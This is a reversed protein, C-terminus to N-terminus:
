LIAEPLGAHAVQWKRLYALLRRVRLFIKVKKGPEASYLRMFLPPIPNSSYLRHIIVYLAPLSLSLKIYRGMPNKCTLGTIIPLVKRM